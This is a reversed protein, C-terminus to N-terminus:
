LFAERDCWNVNIFIKFNSKFSYSKRSIIGYNPHCQFEWFM